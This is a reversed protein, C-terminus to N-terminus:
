RFVIQDSYERHPFLLHTLYVDSGTFEPILYDKLIRLPAQEETKIEIESKTKSRNNVQFPNKKELKVRIFRIPQSILGSTIAVFLDGNSDFAVDALKLM